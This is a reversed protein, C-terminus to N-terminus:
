VEIYMETISGKKIEFTSMCFGTGNGINERLCSPLETISVNAVTEPTNYPPITKYVEILLSNSVPIWQCNDYVQVATYRGALLDNLSGKVLIWDNQDIDSEAEVRGDVYVDVRPHILAYESNIIILGKQRTSVYGFLSRTGDVTAGPDEFDDYVTIKEVTLTLDRDISITDGAKLSTGQANSMNFIPDKDRPLNVAIYNVGNESKYYMDDLYIRGYSAPASSFDKIDVQYSSDSSPFTNNSNTTISTTNITTNSIYASSVASETYTNCSTVSICFFVLLVSITKNRSVM